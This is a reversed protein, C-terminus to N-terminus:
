GRSLRGRSCFSAFYHIKTKRWCMMSTAIMKGSLLLVALFSELYEKSWDVTYTGVLLTKTKRWWTMSTANMRGSLLLIALFRALYKKAWDVTYTGVPLTKTNRESKSAGWPAQSRRM